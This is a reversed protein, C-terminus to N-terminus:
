SCPACPPSTPFTGPVQVSQNFAPAGVFMESMDTVKSTNWGGINQNFASAGDFMQAMSTVNSTNWGSIDHNFAANNSFM